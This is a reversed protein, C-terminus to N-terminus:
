NIKHAGWKIELRSWIWELQSKKCGNEYFKNTKMLTKYSSLNALTSNAFFLTAINTRIWNHHSKFYLLTSNTDFEIYLDLYWSIQFYLLASNTDFEVIGSRRESVGCRYAWLPQQVNSPGRHQLRRSIRLGWWYLVHKQHWRYGYMNIESCGIRM